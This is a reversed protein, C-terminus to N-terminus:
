WICDSRNPEPGANLRADAWSGQPGM